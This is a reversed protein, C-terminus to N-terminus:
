GEVADEYASRLEGLTAAASHREPIGTFHGNTLAADPWQRDILRELAARLSEADDPPVLRALPYTGITELVGGTESAILPVRAAIVELLSQPFAEHRSALVFADAHELEAPKDVDDLWGGIEVRAHEVQRFCQDLWRRDGNGFIRV